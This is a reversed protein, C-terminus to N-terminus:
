EDPPYQIAVVEWAPGPLREITLLVADDDGFIRHWDAINGEDLVVAPCTHNDVGIGQTNEAVVSISSEMRNKRGEDITPIAMMVKVTLDGKAVTIPLRFYLHRRNAHQAYLVDGLCEYEGFWSLAPNRGERINGTASAFEGVSRGLSERLSNVQAMAAEVATDVTQQQTAHFQIVGYDVDSFSPITIEIKKVNKLEM